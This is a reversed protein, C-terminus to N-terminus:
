AVAEQAPARLSAAIDRYAQAPDVAEPMPLAAEEPATPEESLFQEELVERVRGQPLLNISAALAKPDGNQALALLADFTSREARMELIRRKIQQPNELGTLGERLTDDDIIEADLLQLGGVIKTADDWGAMAGYVRRTRRHGKIHKSPTYKEAFAAGRYAGEMTKERQAYHREDWEFRLADLRRLGHALITRYEDVERGVSSNLEDLGRGTVFSNPSQGDDTVPYGAVLRLQREMRDFQSFAQVPVRESNREIRTGPPFYNFADRGKEYTHGGHGGIINTESLVSDETAIMFLINLRAMNALLGIIHDYQGTLRSFSFRKFAHFPPRSLLNPTHTLLIRHEPVVWWAGEDNVYEYCEVGTGRQNAWLSRDGADATSLGGAAAHAHQRLVQKQAETVYPMSLLKRIGIRRLCAFDDPQQQAGWEGVFTEFPDRLELLPFPDGNPARGHRVVVVSYGYGPLWRGLQPLMMSLESLEDMCSLIRVKKETAKLANDSDNDLPPDIKVDPLTGLKQALRTGGSLMLNAVPLRMDRDSVRSGLLAAVAERGGDMVQKVALRDPWTDRNFERLELVRECVEGIKSDDITDSYPAASM